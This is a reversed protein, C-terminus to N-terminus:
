DKNKEEESSNQKYQDYYSESYGYSYGYNSKFNYKKNIAAAPVANMICGILNIGAQEVSQKISEIEESRTNECNVVNIVGMTKSGVIAADTVLGLPPADIFIYDFLPTCDNLLKEMNKSILLETPNPPITGAPLVYLNSIDTKYISPTEDNISALYDSLGPRSQIKMYRHVAPKRLDADIVLIKAGTQAFTIALNLCTTTKGDRPAFSTFVISNKKENSDLMFMLNTRTAKFAEIVNFHSNENIISNRMFRTNKKNSM